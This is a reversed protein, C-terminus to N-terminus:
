LLERPDHPLSALLRQADRHARVLDHELGAADHQRRAEDIALEGVVPLEERIRELVLQPEAPRLDGVDNAADREERLLVCRQAQGERLPLQRHRGARGVDALRPVPYREATITV